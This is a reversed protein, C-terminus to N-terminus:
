LPSHVAYFPRHAHRAAMLVYGNEDTTWALPVITNPPPIAHLSHYRVANVSGVGAFLGTGSHSIPSTLGHKVVHLREIRGGFALCLSQLGLCVGFVPLLHMADLHWIDKIIGVDTDNEPSGPGPGIVIAHFSRLFPLLAGIHPFTDIHIIHVTAGTALSLLSSLNQSFSDYADILLIRHPSSTASPM